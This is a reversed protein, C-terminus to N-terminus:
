ITRRTVEELILIANVGHKKLIDILKIGACFIM